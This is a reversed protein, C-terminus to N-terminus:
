VELLGVNCGDVRVGEENTYEDHKVRCEEVNRFVEFSCSSDGPQERKGNWFVVIMGVHTMAIDTTAQILVTAPHDPNAEGLFLIDGTTATRAYVGWEVESQDKLQRVVDEAFESLGATDCVAYGPWCRM